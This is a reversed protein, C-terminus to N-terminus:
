NIPLLVTYFSREEFYENEIEQDEKLLKFGVIRLDRLINSGNVFYPKIQEKNKYAYFLFGYSKEDTDPPNYLVNYKQGKWIKYIEIAKRITTTNQALYVKDDILDNKFFYPKLTEKLITDGLKYQIDDQINSQIFKSVADDGNLVIQYKYDAFDCSEMYYNEIFKRESFLLIKTPDREIEIRLVYALRDLTDQSKIVLKGSKMLTSDRSFVNQVKKYDFSPDITVNKSQFDSWNDYINISKKNEGIYKSYLWFLYQTIYRTLKKYKNYEDIVSQVRTNKITSEILPLVIKIGCITGQILNNTVTVNELKIESVFERAVKDSVKYVTFSSINEVAFPQLPETFLTIKNGNYNVNLIRTKGYFDISQSIINANIKFDINPFQKNMVYFNNMEKFISMAYKAIDDSLDFTYQLDTVKGNKNWRSILECQPYKSNDSQNGEHEYVFILKGSTYNTKFYGNNHRPIVLNGEPNDTDRKFLLINCDYKVELLHIFYDPDFYDTETQIKKIIDDIAFDFMEQKCSAAYEKTALGRRISSIDLDKIEKKIAYIVCELFSNKSKSIGQRYYEFNKNSDINGFFETINYPLYGLQGINLLKNTKIIHTNASTDVIEEGYYYYRYDAKSSQDKKFCCPLYPFKDSNNLINPRLGPYAYKDNECVYKRPISGETEDKPFTLVQLGRSTYMEEDKDDIFVPPQRCFRTYNSVYIDSDINSKTLKEVVDLKAKNDHEEMPIFKEYFKVVREYEFNYKAILKSLIDQFIKVSAIDRAKSIKVRVYYSNEVMQKINRIDPDKKDVIKETLYATINGCEPTYFHIYITQKQSIITEDVSLFNYFEVNNMILDLMVYKKLKQNPFYTVGSIGKETINKVTLISKMDLVELFRAIIQEKSINNSLTYKMLVKISNDTHDYYIEVDTYDTINYTNTEKQLVKLVINNSSVGWEIVPVFDKRVKFFNNCSAFPVFDTLKIIDFIELISMSPINLDMEFSIREINFPEYNIGEVSTFTNNESVLKDTENKNRLISEEYLKKYQIRNSILDRVDIRHKNSIQALDKKLKDEVYFTNMDIFIADDSKDNGFLITNYYIFIRVMDELYISQQSLKDKVQNYLDIFNDGKNNKIIKALDEVIIPKLDSRFNIPIGDEFYLYKPLTNLNAAIRNLFTDITDLRYINFEENNVLVM